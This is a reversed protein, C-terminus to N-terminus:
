IILSWGEGRFHEKTYTVEELIVDDPALLKIKGGAKNKLRMGHGSLRIRLTDGAGIDHNDLPHSRGNGDELRWGDLRISRDSINLLTVSEKGEEPNPPNVLASIIKIPSDTYVAASAPPIHPEIMGSDIPQGGEDTKWSQTSFALFVATWINNKRIYFAGDQKIGNSWSFSGASGQNMHIVHIGRGPEFHFYADKRGNEPVWTEGFFYFLSDSSGVADEILPILKEKLDNDPGTQSYPLELMDSRKLLGDRVYDLALHSYHSKLDYFGQPLTELENGPNFHDMRKYMLTHPATKSRVNIAARLLEGKVKLLVEVHPSSDDDLTWDVPEGIVLQYNKIPM